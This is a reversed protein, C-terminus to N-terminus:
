KASELKGLEAKEEESLDSELANAIRRHYEASNNLAVARASLDKQAERHEIIKEVIPSM